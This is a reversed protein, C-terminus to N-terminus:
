TLYQFVKVVKQVGKIQRAVEVALNAQQRSVIGMLYVVGDETLIKISGSDLGKKTLLLSRVESTIWLDKSQQKVSIPSAVTMEDYVHRVRPIKQVVQEAQVRLSATTTQGALLVVQNYSVIVVRSDRFRPDQVLAKQAVHFIRLDREITLASRQDYVILGAAAGAVMVAVCASLCVMILSSLILRIKKM